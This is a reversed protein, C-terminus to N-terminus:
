PALANPLAYFCSYIVNRSQILCFFTLLDCNTKKGKRKRRRRKRKRKKQGEKEEAKRSRSKRRRSEEEM